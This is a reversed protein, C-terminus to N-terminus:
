PTVNFPKLDQVTVYAKKWMVTLGETRGRTRRKPHMRITRIKVPRVGYEEQVAQSIQGKTSHATVRFVVQNLVQRDVGKESVLPTLVVKRGASKGASAKPSPQAVAMEPQRMDRPGATPPTKRSKFLSTIAM